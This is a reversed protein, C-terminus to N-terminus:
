QEKTKMAVGSSPVPDQRIQQILGQRWMFPMLVLLDELVVVVELDAGIAAPKLLEELIDGDMLFQVQVLDLVLRLEVVLDALDALFLNFHLILDIFVVVEV